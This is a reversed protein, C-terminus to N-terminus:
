LKDVMRVFVAEDCGQLEYEELAAATAPSIKSLRELIVRKAVQERREKEALETKTLDFTAVDGVEIELLDHVLAFLRVRDVDLEPYHLEAIAPAAIALAYSHEVDNERRSDTLRPIREINSFDDTLQSACLAIDGIRRAQPLRQEVHAEGTFRGAGQICRDDLYSRKNTIIYSNNEYKLWLCLLLGIVRCLLEVHRGRDSGGFIEDRAKSRM